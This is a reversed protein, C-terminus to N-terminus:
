YPMTFHTRHLQAANLEGSRAFQSAGRNSTAALCVQGPMRACPGLWSRECTGGEGNGENVVSGQNEIQFSEEFKLAFCSDAKYALISAGM